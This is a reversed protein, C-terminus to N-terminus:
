SVNVVKGKRLGKFQNFQNIIEDKMLMWVAGIYAAGVVAICLITHWGMIESLVYGMAGAIASSIMPVKMAKLFQGTSIQLSLLYKFTYQAIIVAIIKNFLVAFAAGIVGWNVIFIYLSSMFIIGKFVQLKLELKPRGLGRILVTNSNVMMHFFVSCALIKLPAISDEWKDGFFFIVIDRGFLLFLVMLPYVAISNYEIVKLYWGRIATPDNQKKSYFPYMVSNMVSMIKARFSDTLVFALTYAGLLQASLLKGILLYDINNILYSVINTGTTYIGFGFIDKFAVKDWILKPLWKTKRFYQPAAMLITIVPMLALSWVGAGLYAMLLAILGAVISSINEIKSISKFDMRRVLQAKNVLNIPSLLIGISIIPILTRLIDQKYFIAAFPAIIFAMIIFLCVSLGVGTSFATYFHVPKVDEERKQVLAAGIGLDTLVQVFGTFVTAMGVIGFQEPFLLKALLLKVIFSFSQEVIMKVSSWFIGQAVLRKDNDM